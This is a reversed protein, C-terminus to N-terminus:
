EENDVFDSTYIHQIPTIPLKSGTTNCKENM